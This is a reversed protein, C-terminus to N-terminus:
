NNVSLVSTAKGDDKSPLTVTYFGSSNEIGAALCVVMWCVLWYVMHKVRGGCVFKHKCGKGLQGGGVHNSM